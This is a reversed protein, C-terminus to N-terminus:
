KSQLILEGGLKNIINSVVCLGMGCGLKKKRDDDSIKYDM